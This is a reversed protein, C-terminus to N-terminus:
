PLTSSRKIGQLTAVSYEGRTTYGAVTCRSSRTVVKYRGKLGKDM